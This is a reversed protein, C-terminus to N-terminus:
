YMSLYVRYKYGPYRTAQTVGCQVYNGMRIRPTRLVTVTTKSMYM